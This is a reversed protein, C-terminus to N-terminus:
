RRSYYLAAAIGLALGVGAGIKIAWDSTPGLFAPAPDIPRAELSRLREILEEVRRREDDSLGESELQDIQGEEIGAERLRRIIDPDDGGYCHAGCCAVSMANIARELEESTEPQKKFYCHGTGSPDEDFGILDPAEHEPVRCIICMGNEVYFPGPVNLPYREPQTKV